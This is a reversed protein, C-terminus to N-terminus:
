SLTAARERVRDYAKRMEPCNNHIHEYIRRAIDENYLQSTENRDKLMQLWAAESDLWGAQWAQKLAQRPTATEIGEAALLRKLTKWFLELAFEFRRITGDIALKNTTPEALAEELRDLARGLNAVSQDLKSNM